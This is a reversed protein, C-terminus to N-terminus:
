YNSKDKNQQESACKPCNLTEPEKIQIGDIHEMLFKRIKTFKKRHNIVDIQDDKFIKRIKKDYEQYGWCVPCVGEPSANKTEEEPKKYFELIQDIIDM